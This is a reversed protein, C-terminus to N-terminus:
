RPVESVADTPAISTRDLEGDFRNILAQVRPDAEIAVASALREKPCLGAYKRSRCPTNRAMESAAAVATNMIGARRHCFAAGQSKAAAAM